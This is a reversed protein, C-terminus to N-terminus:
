KSLEKMIGDDYQKLTLDLPYPIRILTNNPIEGEMSPLDPNAQLILWAFNPDGYYNYSLIDLRTYNKKYIEYYDTEKLPIKVFPVPDFTGNHTVREYRNYM